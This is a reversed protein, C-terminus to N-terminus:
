LTADVPQIWLDQGLIVCRIDAAAFVPTAYLALNDAIVVKKFLGLFFISLGIALKDSAFQYIKPNAFQPMMSKHHVIPGAILQPFFTVFLCYHLFNYESTEKRYSDILFAVSGRTKLYIGLAPM